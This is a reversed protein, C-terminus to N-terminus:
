PGLLMKPNNSPAVCLLLFSLISTLIKFTLIPAFFYEENDM